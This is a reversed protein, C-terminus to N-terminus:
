KPERGTNLYEEVLKRLVQQLHHRSRCVSSCLRNHVRRAASRGSRSRAWQHARRRGPDPDDRHFMSAFGVEIMWPLTAVRVEWGPMRSTWFPAQENIWADSLGTIARIAARDLTPCTPLFPLIEGGDEVAHNIFCELEVHDRPGVFEILYGGNPGRGYGQARRPSTCRCGVRPECPCGPEHRTPPRDEGDSM